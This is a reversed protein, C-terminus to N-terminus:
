SWVTSPKRGDAFYTITVTGMPDYNNGNDNSFEWLQVTIQGNEPGSTGYTNTSRVIMTGKTYLDFQPRENTGTGNSQSQNWGIPTGIAIMHLLADLNIKTDASFVPGNNDGDPKDDKYNDYAM